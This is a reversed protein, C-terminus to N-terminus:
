SISINDIERKGRGRKFLSNVLFANMPNGIISNYGTIFVMGAIHLVGFLGGVDGFVDLVNYVSRKFLNRGPDLMIYLAFM